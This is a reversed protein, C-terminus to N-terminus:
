DATMGDFPSTEGFVIEPWTPIFDGAGAIRRVKGTEEWEALCSSQSFAGFFIEVPSDEGFAIGSERPYYGPSLLILRAASDGNSLSWSKLSRFVRCSQNITTRIRTIGAVLFISGCIFVSLLNEKDTGDTYDTTLLTLATFAITDM